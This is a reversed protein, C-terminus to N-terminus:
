RAGAFEAEAAEAAEAAARASALGLRERRCSSASTSRRLASWAFTCPWTCLCPRHMHMAM